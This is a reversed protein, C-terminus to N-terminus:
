DDPRWKASAEEPPIVRMKELTARPVWDGDWEVQEVVSLNKYESFLARLTERLMTMLDDRAEAAGAITAHIWREDQTAWVKARAPGYTLLAGRRWHLTNRILGFTRVLLRPVLPAPIVSFEYRLRVRDAAAPETAAPPEEVPLLAPVLQQEGREDLPFSLQFLSMLRLLFPWKEAPYDAAKLMKLKEAAPYVRSLTEITVIGDPGLPKEHRPDNARLIAYIGNALWDPRLVTTDRLRPDRGYNLAVGLDHLWAALEEQKAPDAEGLTACRATYQEYSLYPNKMGGLWQKIEFWKAPFVRRVEEMGGTAKTLATRLAAVGSTADDPESCETPVWALIPGYKEELTRRDMERVGGQSKNLAVVVPAPGAYSRILQLWYAADREAMDDREGLVLLYLSRATLFFEHMAHLVHQGGFDWVRAQVPADDCALDLERINIGHTESEHADFLEGRLRKILTTKGAGGRGVVILKVERLARGLEGRTAFYYDLLERSPRPSKSSQGYAPIPGLVEAPLGLSTNGHLFLSELRELNQLSVPLARLENNHLVLVKLRFLRGIAEPLVRLYNTRLDLTELRSLEGVANPLANLMNFSLDLSHLGALQSIADPLTSLRNGSLNLTWLQCLQCITQPLTRFQNDSLDLTRLRSLQGIAEPLASLNLRSLDLETAGTRQAEEIRRLADDTASDSSNGSSVAPNNRSPM